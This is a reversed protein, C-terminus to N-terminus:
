KIAKPYNLSYEDYLDWFSPYQKFLGGILTQTTDWIQVAIELQILHYTYICQIIYVYMYMYIYVHIYMYLTCTYMDWRLCSMKELFLSQRPHATNSQRTQKNSRAQKKREEKEDRM